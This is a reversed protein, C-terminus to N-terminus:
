PDAICQNSFASPIAKKSEAIIVNDQPSFFNRYYSKSEMETKEMVNQM